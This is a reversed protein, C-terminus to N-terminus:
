DGQEGQPNEQQTQLAQRILPNRQANSSLRKWKRYSFTVSFKAYDNMQAFGVNMASVNIPFAEMYQVEYMLVNAENLLQLNITGVLNDHYEVDFTDPNIMLDAWDDFFRKEVLFNDSCIFTFTSDIFSLNYPIKRIPGYLRADSTPISKGPLEASEVRMALTRVDIETPSQTTPCLIKAVYRNLPVPNFSTLDTLKGIDIM